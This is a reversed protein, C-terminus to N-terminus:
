LEFLSTMMQNLFVNQPDMKERIALFVKLKPYLAAVKEWNLDLYKGWHPRGRYRFMAKQYGTYYVHKTHESPSFLM